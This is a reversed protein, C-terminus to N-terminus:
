VYYSMQDLVLISQLARVRTYEEPPAVWHGATHRSLALDGGRLDFDRFIVDKLYDLFLDPFLLSDPSVVRGRAKEVMHERPSLSSQHGANTDILHQMRLIGDIETLLTKTCNINGEDTDELFANLGAQLISQKDKFVPKRWWKATMRDIRTKDFSGVTKNIRNEFDFRDGYISALQKYETGIIELFPFWGDKLMAKYEAPKELSDYVPKFCLYRYLSGLSLEMSDIDKQEMPMLNFFLGFNWGQKFCCIFQDKAQISIEPFRMRGIDAIDSLSIPEGAKVDKKTMTELYAVFDNIYLDASLDAHIVIVFRIVSDVLVGARGLFMNSFQTIYIHFEPHGSHLAAQTLFWGYQGAQMNAMPFGSIPPTRDLKIHM